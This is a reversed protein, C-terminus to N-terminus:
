GAAAMRRFDDFALLAEFSGHAAVRGDKLFYLTDCNRVTTLRHAVVIITKIGSLAEIAQTLERETQNDLAATAEDLLLVDPDHYLARAIAIRQRQGGSLKVGREGVLTDLGLPQAALFGDLQAASLARRVAAEDIREPAIGFAVNARITADLLFVDQPIYGIRQRWAAMRGAVDTGDIRFAGQQPELLGLLVGMLTTKGSGSPGVIGISSGRAITLSIGALAPRGAGGYSYGIGDLDIVDRFSLPPPLAESDEAEAWIDIGDAAAGVFDARVAEIQPASLQLTMLASYVRTASPMIRFAAVASMALFPVIGASAQGRLILVAVLGMMSVVALAEMVLRPLDKFTTYAIRAQAYKGAIAHLQDLFYGRRGFVIAERAGGACQSTWNVLGVQGAQLRAGLGVLHRRMLRSTAALTLGLFAMMALTEVPKVWVMVGVLSGSVLVETVMILLPDMSGSAVNVADIVVIRTFDASNRDLHHSYPRHLFCRSIRAVLSGYIAYVYRQRAYVVYGLYVNRVSFLLALGAAGALIFSQPAPSGALRYAAAIWRNTSIIGPDTVMSVFPLVLGVSLMEFGAGLVVLVVMGVLRVRQRRNLFGLTTAFLRRM